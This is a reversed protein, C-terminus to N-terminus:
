RGEPLEGPQKLTDPGILDQELLDKVLRDFRSSAKLYLVAITWGVVFQSLAFLYALTVTGFVRTSMLGPAYGVLVPLLLYYGLFFVFAPVIFMKKVSLLYQFRISTAIRNWNAESPRSSSSDATIPKM